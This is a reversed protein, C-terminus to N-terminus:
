AKGKHKLLRRRDRKDPRHDPRVVTLKNLQYLQANRHRRSKSAETEQYLTQAIKAPGRKDSLGVIVVDFRENGRTITLHNGIVVARAPKSRQQDVHVKGGSVAEAALARTKFFRAAWLWKDLRISNQDM